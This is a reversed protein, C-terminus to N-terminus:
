KIGHVGVIRYATSCRGPWWYEVYDLKVTPEGRESIVKLTEIVGPDDVSFNFASSVRKDDGFGSTDVAPLGLAGEHSKWLWGKESLKYLVGTRSGRSYEPGKIDAFRMAIGAVALVMLLVIVLCGLRIMKM